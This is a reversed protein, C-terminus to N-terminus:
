NKIIVQVYTYKKLWQFKNYKKIRNKIKFPIIHLKQKRIDREM